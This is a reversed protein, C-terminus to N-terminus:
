GSIEAQISRALSFLRQEILTPVECVFTLSHTRENFIRVETQLQTTLASAQASDGSSNLDSLRSQEGRIREAMAKQARGYREIGTIVERREGDLLVFLGAFV